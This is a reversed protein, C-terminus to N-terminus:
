FLKFEVKQEPGPKEPIINIAEEWKENNGLTVGDVTYVTSAGISVELRYTVLRHERNAIGVIVKAEQGVALQQPYESAKGEPGLIYFETFIEGTEPRSAVYITVGVVILIIAILVISWLKFRM